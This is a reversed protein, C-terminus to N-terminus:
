RSGAECVRAVVFVRRFPLLVGAPGEPYAERLAAKFEAEYAERVGGPLAALTPRAGTGSVWAFVPDPGHLVHLYTTEWADVECGLSALAEAYTRADHADPVAIDRTFGAYPARAAIEDRLTHSPEEFNGPVQVAIWGGPRVRAVLDPLLDLHDPVWQLTANSVLVDVEEGRTLWARLDAVEYEVDQPAASSSAHAAAIMEPSADLGRVRAAPWRQALLATLNGPGCGLDVVDVPSEARVRTLLEVFPRGREDAYTLYHAPDWVAASM